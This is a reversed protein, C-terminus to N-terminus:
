LFTYDSWPFELTDNFNLNQYTNYLKRINQFHRSVATMLGHDLIGNAFTECQIEEFIIITCLNDFMIQNYYDIYSIDNYEVNIAHLKQYLTDIEYVNNILQVM